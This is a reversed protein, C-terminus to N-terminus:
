SALKRTVYAAIGACNSPMSDVDEDPIDLGFQEEVMMALEIRDLSDLDLGDAERHDLPQYDGINEVEVGSLLSVQEKVQALIDM